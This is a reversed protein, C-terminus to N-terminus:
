RNTLPVPGLETFDIIDEAHDPIQAPSVGQLLLNFKINEIGTEEANWAPVLSLLSSISGNVKCSGSTPTLNGAIIQLLTSKGAGNPGIIGIRQKERVQLSIDRLAWFTDHRVGGFLVEKLMDSPRRYINYNMSVNEVSIVVDDSM